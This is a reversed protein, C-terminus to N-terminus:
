CIKLCKRWRWVLNFLIPQCFLCINEQWLRRHSTSHALQIALNVSM